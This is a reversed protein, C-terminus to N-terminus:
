RGALQRYASAQMLYVLMVAPIVGVILALVGILMIVTSLVGLLLCTLKQDTTANWSEQVAEVPALEQDVVYYWVFTLRPMVALNWALNVVAGVASLFGSGAMQGLISLAQGAFYLLMMLIILVLMTGLVRAYDSFGSFVDALEGKDELVNLAFRVGGWGLVPVVLFLGVITLGSLVSVVLFVLSVGLMLGFNSWLAAWAERFAEGLDIRGTGRERTPDGLAATPPAYRDDSM